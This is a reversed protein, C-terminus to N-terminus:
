GWLVGAAGCVDGGAGGRASLPRQPASARARGRRARALGGARRTEARHLRKRGLAGAAPLRDQAWPRGRRPRPRDDRRRPLGRLDRSHARPACLLAPVRGSCGSHLGVRRPGVQAAQGVPLLGPRRRDPARAPRLAPQSLVLPLLRRRLGQRSYRVGPTLQAAPLRTSRSPRRCSAPVLCHAHPRGRFRRPNRNDPVVPPQPLDHRWCAPANQRTSRAWGLPRALPTRQVGQNPPM